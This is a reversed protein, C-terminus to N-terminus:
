FSHSIGVHTERIDGAVTTAKGVNIDNYTSYLVTRKSLAYNAGLATQTVANSAAVISSNGRTGYVFGISLAGVPVNASVLTTNKPDADTNGIRRVVNTAQYGIGVKVIGLDYSGGVTTYKVGNAAAYGQLGAVAATAAVPAIATNITAPAATYDVVASLPGNSLTAGFAYSDKFQDNNILDNAAIGLSANPLKRVPTLGAYVNVGNMTPSTYAVRNTRASGAIIRGAQTANDIGTAAKVGSIQYIGVTSAISNNNRGIQVTGFGGDLRIEAIRDGIEFQNSTMYGSPILTATNGTGTRPSVNDVSRYSYIGSQVSFGAKLGGGLDETGSMTFSGTPRVIDAGLNFGDVRSSGFSMEMVGSLAVTSQASATGFAALAALAILSKKM